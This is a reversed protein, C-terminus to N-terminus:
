LDKDIKERAEKICRRINGFEYKLVALVSSSSLAVLELSISHVENIPSNLVWFTHHKREKRYLAMMWDEPHKWISGHRLYTFKKSPKGYKKQLRESINDALDRAEAGHSDVNKKVLFAKVICAGASETGYVTVSHFGPPLRKTPLNRYSMGGNTMGDANGIPDGESIGFPGAFVTSPILLGCFVVIGKAFYSLEKSVDYTDRTMRLRM